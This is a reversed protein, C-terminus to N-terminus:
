KKEQQKCKCAHKVHPRCRCAQVACLLDQLVDIERTCRRLAELKLCVKSHDAWREASRLSADALGAVGEGLVLFKECCVMDAAEVCAASPWASTASRPALVTATCAAEDASTALEALLKACVARFTRARAARRKAAKLAAGRAFLDRLAALADWHQQETSAPDTGLHGQDHDAEPAVGQEPAGKLVVNSHQVPPRPTLALVCFSISPRLLETM